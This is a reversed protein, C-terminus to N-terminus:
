TILEFYRQPRGGKGSGPRVVEGYRLVREQRMENTLRQIYHKRAGLFDALQCQTMPGHALVMVIRDRLSIM